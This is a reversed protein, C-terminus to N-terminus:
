SDSSSAAKSLFDRAYASLIQSMRSECVAGPRSFLRNLPTPLRATRKPPRSAERPPGRRHTRLPPDHRSIRSSGAMLPFGKRNKRRAPLFGRPSLCAGRGGIAPEELAKRRHVAEPFGAGGAHTRLSRSGSSFSHRSMRGQVAEERRRPCHAFVPLLLCLRGLV